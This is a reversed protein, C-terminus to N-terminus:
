DDDDGWFIVDEDSWTYYQEEEMLMEKETKDVVIFEDRVTYADVNVTKKVLKQSQKNYEIEKRDPTIHKIWGLRRAEEPNEDLWESVGFVIRGTYKGTFDNAEPHEIKGNEKLREYSRQEAM